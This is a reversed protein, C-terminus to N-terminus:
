GQGRVDQGGSEPVGSASAADVGARFGMMGFDALNVVRPTGTVQFRLWCLCDKKENDVTCKKHINLGQCDEDACEPSLYISIKDKPCAEKSKTEASTSDSKTTTQSANEYADEPTKAETESISVETASGSLALGHIQLAQQPQGAGSFAPLQVSITVSSIIVLLWLSLRHNFFM